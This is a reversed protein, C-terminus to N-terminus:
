LIPGSEAAHMWLRQAAAAAKAAVSSMVEMNRGKSVPEIKVDEKENSGEFSSCQDGAGTGVNM